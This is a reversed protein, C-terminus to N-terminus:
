APSTPTHLSHAAPNVSDVTEGQPWFTAIDPVQWFTEDITRGIQVQGNKDLHLGGIASFEHAGLETLIDILQDLIQGLEDSSLSPYIDSITERSVRSRPTYEHGTPNNPTNHLGGRHPHTHQHQERGM